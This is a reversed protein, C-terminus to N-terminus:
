AARRYAESVLVNWARQWKALTQGSLSTLVPWAVELGLADVMRQAILLKHLAQREIQRARERCVGLEVAVEDLIVGSRLSEITGRIPSTELARTVGLRRIRMALTGKPVHQEAAWAALSQTRGRYTIRRPSTPM